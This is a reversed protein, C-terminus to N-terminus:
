PLYQTTGFQTVSGDKLLAITQSLGTAIAVVNNLRLPPNYRGYSLMDSIVIGDERLAFGNSGDSSGTIAIFKTTPSHSAPFGGESFGEKAPFEENMDIAGSNYLVSVRTGYQTDAFVVDSVGSYTDGKSKCVTEGCEFMTIQSVTYNCFDPEQSNCLHALVAIIDGGARVDVVDYATTDITNITKANWVLVNNEKTLAVAHNEGAAMATITTGQPPNVAPSKAAGWIILTHQDTLAMCFTGGARIAIINALAPAPTNGCSQDGWVVVNGDNSLAMFSNGYASIAKINTLINPFVYLTDKEILEMDMPNISPPLCMAGGTGSIGPESPTSGCSIEERDYLLTIYERFVYGYQNDQYEVFAWGDADDPWDYIRVRQNQTLGAIVPSNADPASRVRLSRINVVGDLFTLPEFDCCTPEIYTPTPEEEQTPTFVITTPVAKTRGCAVLCIGILMCVSIRTFINIIRPM